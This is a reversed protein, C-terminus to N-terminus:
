KSTHRNVKTLGIIIPTHNESRWSKLATKKDGKDEDLTM